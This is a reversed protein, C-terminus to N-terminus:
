RKEEIAAQLLEAYRSTLSLLEEREEKKLGCFAKQEAAILPGIIQEAVAKGEQTLGVLKNKRNGPLPKLAILGRKELSKLASNVTQPPYHWLTSIERQTHEQKEYLSYLLWLHADSIGHRKAYLHYLNDMEKYLQNYVELYNAASQEM